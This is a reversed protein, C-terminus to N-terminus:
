IIAGHGRMLRPAPFPHNLRGLRQKPFAAQCSGADLLEDRAASRRDAGNVMKKGAALRLDDGLGQPEMGTLGDLEELVRESVRGHRQGCTQSGQKAPGRIAEFGSAGVLAAGDRADREAKTRAVIGKPLHTVGAEVLPHVFNAGVHRPRVDFCPAGKGHHDDEREFAREDERAGLM